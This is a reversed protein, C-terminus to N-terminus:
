QKKGNAYFNKRNKWSQFTTLSVKLKRAIDTGTMGQRMMERAQKAQRIALALAHTPEPAPVIGEKRAFQM